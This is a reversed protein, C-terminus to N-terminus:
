DSIHMEKLWTVMNLYFLLIELRELRLPLSEETIRVVGVAILTAFTV